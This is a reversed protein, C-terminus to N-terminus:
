KHPRSIPLVIQQKVPEVYSMPNHLIYIVGLAAVSILLFLLFRVLVPKQKVPEPERYAPQIYGMETLIRKAEAFDEERVQLKIGGLAGGYLPNVTVTHEDKAFSPIGDHELRGKVVNMNFSNSFTAVTVLSM